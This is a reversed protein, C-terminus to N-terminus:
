EVAKAKIVEYIYEAKSYYGQDKRELQNCHFKRFPTISQSIIGTVFLDVAAKVAVSTPFRWGPPIPRCMKCGWNWRKFGDEDFYENPDHINSSSNLTTPQEPYM